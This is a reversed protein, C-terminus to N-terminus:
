MGGDPRDGPVADQQRIIEVRWDIGVHTVMHHHDLRLWIRGDERKIEVEVFFQDNSFIYNWDWWQGAWFEALTLVTSDDATIVGVELETYGDKGQWRFLAPDGLRLTIAPKDSLRLVIM